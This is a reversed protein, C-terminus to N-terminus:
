PKVKRREIQMTAQEVVVSRSEEHAVEALGDSVWGRATPEWIDVVEGKRHWSWDALMKIKM